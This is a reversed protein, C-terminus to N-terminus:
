DIDSFEKFKEIHVLRRNFLKNLRGFEFLDLNKALFNTEVVYFKDLLAYYQIPLKRYINRLFAFPENSETLGNYYIITYKRKLNERILVLM